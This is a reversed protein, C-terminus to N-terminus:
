VTINKEDYIQAWNKSVRSAKVANITYPLVERFYPLESTTFHGDKQRESIYEEEPLERWTNGTRYLIVMINRLISEPESKYFISSWPKECFDFPHM